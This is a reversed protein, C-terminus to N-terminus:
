QGASPVIRPQHDAAGRESRQKLGLRELDMYRRTMKATLLRLLPAFLGRQELTLTVTSGGGARPAIRHAAVSDLGPVTARWVFGQDGALETVTWVAAALRPQRIRVRSGVALPGPTRLEARTISATWEPWREIDAMVAWVEHPDADIDVTTEYRM